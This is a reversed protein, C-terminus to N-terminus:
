GNLSDCIRKLPLNIPKDELYSVRLGGQGNVITETPNQYYTGVMYGLVATSAKQATEYDTFQYTFTQREAKDTFTKLKM